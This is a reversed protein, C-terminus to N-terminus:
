VERNTPLTLHTYSVAAFRWPILDEINRGLKIKPVKLLFNAAGIPSDFWMITSPPTMGIQDYIQRIGEEALARNAPATSLPFSRIREAISRLLWRQHINLSEIPKSM